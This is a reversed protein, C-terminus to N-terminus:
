VGFRRLRHPVAAEATRRTGRGPLEESSHLVIVWSPDIEVAISRGLLSVTVVLRQTSKFRDLFGECGVLPGKVVRVRQGVSSDRLRFLPLQSDVLVRVADIEADCVPTARDSFGVISRVGPVQRVLPHEAEELRCFVYRPFLPFHVLQLRDSWRRPQTHLPLFEELGRGRMLEAVVKEHRPKVQVAYWRRQPDIMM